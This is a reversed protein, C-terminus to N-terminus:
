CKKLFENANPVKSIIGSLYCFEKLLFYAQRLNVTLCCGALDCHIRQTIVTFYKAPEATQDPEAQGRGVRNEALRPLGPRRGAPDERRQEIEGLGRM